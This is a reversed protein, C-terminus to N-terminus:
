NCQILFLHDKSSLQPYLNRLSVILHVRVKHIISSWSVFVAKRRASYSLQKAMPLPAFTSVMSSFGFSKMFCKSYFLEGGYIEIM